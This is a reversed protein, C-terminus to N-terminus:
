NKKMLKWNLADFLKGFNVNFIYKANPEKHILLLISSYLPENYLNDTMLDDFWMRYVM